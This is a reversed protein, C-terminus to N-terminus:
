MFLAGRGGALGHAVDTAAQVASKFGRRWAFRSSELPLGSPRGRAVFAGDSVRDGVLPRGVYFPAMAGLETM